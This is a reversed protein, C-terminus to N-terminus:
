PLCIKGLVARRRAGTVQPVNGPRAGIAEVALVAFAIAEKAEVPLVEVEDFRKVPVPALLRQLHAMMTRNLAGGGSVLVEDIQPLFDRYSRAIAEATFAVLTALLDVPKRDSHADAWADTTARGYRERGTSKPPKRRLYEDDLLGRLLDPQVSGKASHTGDRDVTDGLRPMFADIMMNGPGNDFAVIEEFPTDAGGVFTVNAIGGINQLARRKGPHRYLLWDTYPVLPAGEGGNAVDAVRFDGVTLVGTRAAIVAPDGIQLTSTPPQHWITQGHSGILDPRDGDGSRVIENAAAAFKEGLWFNADCIERTSAEPLALIRAREAATFPFAMHKILTLSPSDDPGEIFLWAADIGDASTGSMLGVVTKRQKTLIRLLPHDSM